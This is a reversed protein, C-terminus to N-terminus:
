HHHHYRSCIVICKVGEFYVSILCLKCKLMWIYQFSCLNAKVDYFYFSNYGLQMQVKSVFKFSMWNSNVGEVYIQFSM